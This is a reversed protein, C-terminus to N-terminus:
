EHGGERDVVRVRSWVAVNERVLRTVFEEGLDKWARHAGAYFPRRFLGLIQEEGFGMRAYEEALCRAMEIQAARGGPLEVGVLMMPDQPDPDDYPM